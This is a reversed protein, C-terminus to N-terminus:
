PKVELSEIWAVAVAAVQSLENRLFGHADRHNHEINDVEKAVEGLEEILVRAKRKDDVIPSACDFQIKKAKFLQRQRKREAIVAAFAPQTDQHQLRAPYDMQIRWGIAYAAVRELQVRLANNNRLLEVARGVGVTLACLRDDNGLRDGTALLIQPCHRLRELIADQLNM